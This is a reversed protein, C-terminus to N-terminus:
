FITASYGHGNLICTETPSFFSQSLANIVSFPQEMRFILLSTDITELGM